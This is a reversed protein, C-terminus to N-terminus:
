SISTLLDIRFPPRGIMLVNEEKLFDSVKFGLASGCFKNLVLILKEANEVSREIFFDM